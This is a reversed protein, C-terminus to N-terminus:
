LIPIEVIVLGSQPVNFYQSSLPFDRSDRRAKTGVLGGLAEYFFLQYSM